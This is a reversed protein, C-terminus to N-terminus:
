NNNIYVWKSNGCDWIRDYGNNKMNEWETLNIDFNELMNKLRHKQFKMRNSLTIYNDIIYYYSPFTNKIFQFGLQSYVSGNFYRRDCYSVVSKPRHTNIFHKFLKSAGGRVILNLKNCFRSMEYEVSKDFRSKRFSMVSVIENNNYILGYRISSNDRGQLHNRNIFDHYEINNLEKIECNKSDIKSEIKKFISKLISKVIDKKYVWENEFIHILRVEKRICSLTKHIHYVKSKRGLIESHWYLGDCEIGIKMDPIFIDIEKPYLLSRDNTIIKDSKILSKIYDYIEHQFTSTNNDDKDCIKCKLWRGDSIDYFDSLNCRKCEFQYKQNFNATVGKYEDINFKPIFNIFRENNLFKEFMNQKHALKFKKTKSSHDVGYKKLCSQKVKEKYEKTKVFYEVGYKELNTKKIQNINNYNKIGHKKLNTQEVRERYGVMRSPHDVGYKEMMAKRFNSQTGPTQMPHMGNYKKNYTNKSSESAKKLVDVNNVACTRSCFIQRVKRYSITFQKNCTPCIKDVTLPRKRPRGM